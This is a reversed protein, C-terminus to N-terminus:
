KQIAKTLLSESLEVRARVEAGQTKITLSKLLAAVTPDDNGMSALGLLGKMMGALQTAADASEVRLEVEASYLKRKHGAFFHVSRIDAPLPLSSASAKLSELMKGSVGSAVLVDKRSSLRKGLPSNAMSKGKGQHLQATVVVPDPLQSVILTTGVVSVVMDDGLHYLRVGNQISSKLTRAKQLLALLGVSAPLDMLLASRGRGDTWVTIGRTKGLLSLTVAQLADDGQGQWAKLVEKGLDKKMQARAEDPLQSVIVKWISSARLRDVNLHFVADARAPVQKASFPAADAGAGFAVIVLL